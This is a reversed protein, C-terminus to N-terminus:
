SVNMLNGGEIGAGERNEFSTECKMEMIGVVIGCKVDV